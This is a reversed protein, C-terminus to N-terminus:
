SGLGFLGMLIRLLLPREEAENGAGPGNLPLQEVVMGGSEPDFSHESSSDVEISLIGEYVQAQNFDDLYNVTVTVDLTGAKEPFGIADLSGSTGGDLPGMYISSNELRMDPSSIAITSINILSRGINVVEVPLDMAQGVLGGDVPRYFNIQFQPPKEILLNIVQTGSQSINDAGDFSLEIPLNFIGSNATGAVLLRQKLEVTQGAAIAEIFRINGSNLVAFPQLEAGNARGLTVIVHATDANGVNTINLVLDFIDGPKLKGEPEVRYTTLVLQPQSAAPTPTATAGSVTIGVSQASSYSGGNIDFYTLNFSLNQPGSVATESLVLALTVTMTDEYRIRPIIRINSGSTPVATDTSQLALEIDVATWNGLNALALTLDFPQGPQPVAPELIVTQIVLQPQGFVYSNDPTASPVATPTPGVIHLAGELVAHPGDQAGLGVQINYFGTNVGTPVIGTLVENNVYTTPIVGIGVVRIVSGATFGGGYVTLTGGTEGSMQGPEIATLVIPLVAAPTASPTATLLSPLHPPALSRGNAMVRGAPLSHLLLLLGSTSMLFPMLVRRIQKKVM